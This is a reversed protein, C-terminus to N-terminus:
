DPSFSSDATSLSVREQERASGGEAYEEPTLDGWHAPRDRSRVRKLPCNTFERDRERVEDIMYGFRPRAVTVALGDTRAKDPQQRTKALWNAKGFEVLM